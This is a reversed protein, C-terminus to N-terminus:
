PRKSGQEFADLRAVLSENTAQLSRVESTLAMVAQLMHNMVTSDPVATPAAVTSVPRTPRLADPHASSSGAVPTSAEPVPPLGAQLRSRRVRNAKTPSPLPKRKITLSKVAIDPSEMKELDANDYAQSQRQHNERILRSPGATTDNPARGFNPDAPQKGNNRGRGPPQPTSPTPPLPAHPTFAPVPAAPDRVRDRHYSQYQSQRASSAPPPPPPPPPPPTTPMPPTPLPRDSVFESRPATAQRGPQYPQFKGQSPASPLPKNGNHRHGRAYDRVFRNFDAQDIEPPHSQHLKAWAQEPGDHVGSCRNLNSRLSNARFPPPAPMYPLRPTAITPRPETAPIKPSPDASLQTATGGIGRVQLSPPLGDLRRDSQDRTIDSRRGHINSPNVSGRFDATCPTELDPVEPSYEGTPNALIFTTRKIVPEPEPEPRPQQAHTSPGRRVPRPSSPARTVSFTNQVSRRKRGARRRWVRVAKQVGYRWITKPKSIHVSITTATSAITRITRASTSGRRAVGNAPSNFNIASAFRSRKAPDAQLSAKLTASPM